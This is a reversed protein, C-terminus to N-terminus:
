ADRRGLMDDLLKRGTGDILLEDDVLIRMGALVGPNISEHIISEKGFIDRIEKKAYPSVPAPTEVDIEKIGLRQLHTRRIDRFIENLKSFARDRLLLSLFKKTISRAESESKGEILSLYSERYARARYKM